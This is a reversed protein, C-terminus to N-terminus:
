LNLYFQQFIPAFHSAITKAYFAFFDGPDFGIGLFALVRPLVFFLVLLMLEMYPEYKRMAVAEHSPLIAYLVHYGDLPQLPIINILALIINAIAFIFVFQEIRLLYAPQTSNHTLCMQLLAGGPQMVCRDAALSLTHYGPTLTLLVAAGIGILLSVLPGAIAVLISGLNPNVRMRRADVSIPRGWGLGFGHFAYVIAVITGIITMHRRPSLSLRGETSPTSDGLATAIIAHAWEHLTLAIVLAIFAEVIVIVNM